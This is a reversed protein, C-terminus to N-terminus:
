SGEMESEMRSAGTIRNLGLAIVLGVVVLVLAIVSAQGMEYSRFGTLYMDLPLVRTANGPGGGTLVFILDFYTLSGVTMLTTSTVITYKLLPLTIRFFQAVAGAGDMRSAEYIEAPIQRAGAQYILTHFPIFSWGIVFVVVYFALQPDGLWDRSLAPIGLATGAGFNPDLLAVFTLAVAASSFLLPLFFLAGLVARYRQRGALFVGLLLSVPAQFLVSVVTLKATLWVATRTDPDAAAARYNDLGAWSIPGLGDWHAFSLAAVGFLPVIAFVGFLLVAPAAFWGSPGTARVARTM